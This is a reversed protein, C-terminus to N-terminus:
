FGRMVSADCQGPETSAQQGFLSERLDDETAVVEHSLGEYQALGKIFSLILSIDSETAPEIRFESVNSMTMRTHINYNLPWM